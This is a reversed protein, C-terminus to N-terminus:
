VGISDRTGTRQRAGGSEWSSRSNRRTRLLWRKPASPFETVGTKGADGGSAPSAVCYKVLIRLFKGFAHLKKKVTIKHEPIRLTLNTIPPPTKANPSGL